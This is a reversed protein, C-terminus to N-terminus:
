EEEEKKKEERIEEMAELIESEIKEHDYQFHIIVRDTIYM